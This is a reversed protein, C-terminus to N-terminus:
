VAPRARRHIMWMVSAVCALLPLAFLNLAEWGVAEELPASGFTTLVMLGYILFDNASQVRAKEEPKYVTALLSTAGVFLLNWGVGLLALGVAYNHLAVGGLNTLASLALLLLGGAMIRGEGFRIILHGTFFSPVFMGLVHWQIVWATDDFSHMHRHMSLPTANMLLSMVAWSAVAGVLAIAFRPDRAIERLSRGGGRSEAQSPVPFRVFSLACLVLVQIAAIALYSGAFLHEPFLGRSWSALNSGAVAAVIGGAMVLSIARSRWSEDVVEAAAFRYYTSFGNVAGIGVAGMCLLVFDENFLAACGVLGGVVGLIAGLAFGVKRGRRQMLRAAPVTMLMTSVPALALPLTALAAHPALERGVLAMSSLVVISGTRSFAECLFLFAINRM